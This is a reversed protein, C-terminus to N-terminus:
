APIRQQEPQWVKVTVPQGNLVSTGAVPDTDQDSLLDNISAGAHASATSQRTGDRDHGWGHPISVVGPMMDETIEVPLIVQRDAVSIQAKSGAQLGLRNADHTHILLTCRDKGKVLRRCNHMWSNNSRAHRRGILLLGGSPEPASLQRHLREVDELYRRPALHIKGDRTFLRNPLAPRLAGLDIGSPHEKLRKLSLGKPLEQWQPNLSSLKALGRLPHHKPLLSMIMGTAPEVMGRVRGTDAGYPGTRLLLDIIPDPGAQRFARWGLESRIPLTGGKRLKELRHALELLIQWDHRSDPGADFLAESYKSVNRVALMNFVIDYHSRELAATPPLIIDAHRTTENIYYDVSVMFDLGSLAEDLRRGNPSSLVPNGAVTVFARVQGEGPTLIEDAMTSSPYEGAFEPLGKVRSHRKGFHGQQGSMAGLAILDIAPQTFMVGGVTDLKGTLINLCYALWTAISGFTQTSTGMRTYLAAKPTNALQHALDRTTEASIGTRKAVAEPTFPLSALRLLDLDKILDKAPGPHVLEDTFLTNVMAMLLFADTGPRVFHFEEALKATETRRPDVVIMMGGRQKLAKLRGRFDPVTMLSGNSAMPNGGICIFLDTNDIDPIPFLVQHGFMELSALMHPLQDNSTASFRNQTGVARLFPMTAILSGHNHVNPNGLYVGISNRGHTSRTSHLKEAVTRFAEDWEIEQWGTPTKRVPKRLREPDEHLDQLAVAKPCIHGRSLPDKDDGRISAISGGKVEVAIGCMAECLHCTRYHTGNQM